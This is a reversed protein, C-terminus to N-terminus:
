LVIMTDPRPNPKSLAQHELFLAFDLLSPFTSEANIDREDALRVTHTGANKGAIIDSLSDGVTHSDSLDIELDESAALLMGAEPKRCGCKEGEDHPCYYIADLSVGEKELEEGMFKHVKILESLTMYGRAIGRQNTIIVLLFGMKKLISLAKAAGPLLEFEMPSRVYHGEPLKKNIVGDRDLFIAKRIPTTTSLVNTNRPALKKLDWDVTRAKVPNQTRNPTETPRRISGGFNM